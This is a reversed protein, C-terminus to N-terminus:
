SVSFAQLVTNLIEDGTLKYKEILRTALAELARWCDPDRLIKWAWAESNRLAEQAQEQPLLNAYNEADYVDQEAIRVTASDVSKQECLLKEAVVGALCFTCHEWIQFRSYSQPKPLRFREYIREPPLIPDRHRLAPDNDTRGGWKGSMDPNAYIQMSLIERGQLVGMFGHGAENYAALTKENVETGM